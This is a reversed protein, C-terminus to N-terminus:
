RRGDMWLLVILAIEIAKTAWGLLDVKIGTVAFYGILTVATFAILLWRVIGRYSALQPLFYAALLVLYGLGNLIFLTRMPPFIVAVFWHIVATAITLIIIGIQIGTLRQATGIM